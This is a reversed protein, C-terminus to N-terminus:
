RKIMRFDLVRTGFYSKEGYILASFPENPLQQYAEKTICFEKKIANDAIGGEVYFNCMRFSIRHNKQMITPVQHPYGFNQTYLNGVGYVICLWYTGLILTPLVFIHGLVKKFKSFDNEPSLKGTWLAYYIAILSTATIGISLKLGLPAWTKSPIFDCFFSYFAFFALLVNGNTTVKRLTTPYETTYWSTKWTM